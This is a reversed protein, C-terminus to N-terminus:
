TVPSPLLLGTIDLEAVVRGDLVLPIAEDREYSQVQRCAPWEGGVQEAQAEIRMGCLDVVWPAPVSGAFAAIVPVLDDGPGPDFIEVALGAEAGMLHRDPLSGPAGRLVALSVDPM